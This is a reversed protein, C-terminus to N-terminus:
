FVVSLLSEKLVDYLLSKVIVPYSANIWITKNYDGTFFLMREYELEKQPDNGSKIKFSVLYIKGEKGSRTKVMEESIYKVGQSELYEKTVGKVVLTWPSGEVENVQISASSGAHIFGRATASPIFHVPQIMRVATGPVDVMKGLYKDFSTDRVSQGSGTYTLFLLFAFLVGTYFKRFSM